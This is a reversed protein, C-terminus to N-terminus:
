RAKATTGWNAAVTDFESRLTTVFSIFGGFEDGMTAYPTLHEMDIDVGDAFTYAVLKAMLKAAKAGNEASNLRAYDSWGGLTIKVRKPGSPHMRAMRVVEAIAVISPSAEDISTSSDVAISGQM